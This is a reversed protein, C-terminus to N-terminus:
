QGVGGNRTLKSAAAEDCIVQVDPHLRLASAPCDESLPGEIMCAVAEAKDLGTALLLIQRAELITGIGMTIACEPALTAGPFGAANARRTADDLRVERTRSSFDSGPENFGIHSNAGIGLLQLAIGGADKILAEYRAAEAAIDTALGNPIHAQWPAIDVHDFLHRRMYAHFSGPAEPSVGVYEDLNFSIAGRFSAGRNHYAAVLRAYLPTMTAGTALGLAPREGNHLTAILQIAVYDVATVADPVIDLRPAFESM